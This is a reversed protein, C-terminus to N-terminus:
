GASASPVLLNGFYTRLGALSPHLDRLEKWEHRFARTLLDTLDLSSPIELRCEIAPFM